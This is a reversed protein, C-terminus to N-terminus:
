FWKGYFGNMNNQSCFYIVRVQTTNLLDSKSILVYYQLKNSITNLLSLILPCLKFILDKGTSGQNLMRINNDLTQKIANNSSLHGLTPHRPQIGSFVDWCQQEVNRTCRRTTSVHNVTALM